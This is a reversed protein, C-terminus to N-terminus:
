TALIEAITLSPTRKKMTKIMEIEIEAMLRYFPTRDIRANPNNERVGGEYRVCGTGLIRKDDPRDIFHAIGALRCIMPRYEYLACKGEFNAACVANRYPDGNSDLRKLETIKQSREIIQFRVDQNLARLGRRMYLMEAFTHVILDVTCCKTGDCGECNFGVQFSVDNYTADIEEYLEKLRPSLDTESLCSGEEGSDM